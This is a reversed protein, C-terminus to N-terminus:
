ANVVRPLKSKESVINSLLLCGCKRSDWKLFYLHTELLDFLCPQLLTPIADEKKGERMTCAILSEATFVSMSSSLIASESWVEGLRQLM